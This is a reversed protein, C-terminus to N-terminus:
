ISFADSAIIKSIGFNQLLINLVIQRWRSLHKVFFKRLSIHKYVIHKGAPITSTKKDTFIGDTEKKFKGAKWDIETWSCEEIKISNKWLM